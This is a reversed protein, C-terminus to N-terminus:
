EVYKGPISTMAPVKEASLFIMGTLQLDSLTCTLDSAFVQVCWVPLRHVGLLLSSEPWAGMCSVASWLSALPEPSQLLLHTSVLLGAAELTLFYGIPLVARGQSDTSWSRHYLPRFVGGFSKHLICVDKLYSVISLFGLFIVGFVHTTHVAMDLYNLLLFM